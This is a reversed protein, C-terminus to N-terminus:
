SSVRLDELNTCIRILECHDHTDLDSSYTLDLKKLAVAYPILKALTDKRITPLGLQCLTVPLPLPLDTYENPYKGGFFEELATAKHFFDHLDYIDIQCSSNIKVSVLNHCKKALENLDEVSVVLNTLHLSLSEFAENNTALEKLWEDHNYIECNHGQLQLQDIKSADLLL